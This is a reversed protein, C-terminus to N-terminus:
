NVRYSRAAGSASIRAGAPAKVPFSGRGMFVTGVGGGSGGTTVADGLREPEDVAHAPEGVVAREGGVVGHAADAVQEGVVVV